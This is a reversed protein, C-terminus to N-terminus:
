CKEMLDEGINNEQSIEGLHDPRNQSSLANLPKTCFIGTGCVTCVNLEQVQRSFSQWHRAICVGMSLMDFFLGLM